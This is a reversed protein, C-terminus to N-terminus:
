AIRTWKSSDMPLAKWSQRQVSGIIQMSDKPNNQMREYAAHGSEDLHIAM